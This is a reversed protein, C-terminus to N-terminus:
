LRRIMEFQKGKLSISFFDLFRTISQCQIETNICKVSHHKNLQLMQNLLVTAIGKRRHQEDVAIQTIDGTGIEFICYGVVEGRFFAANMKFNETNRMVADFSNQWSPHFDYFKPLDYNFNIKVQKFEYGVPKDKKGSIVNEKQQVFYNLERTVEFGLKQYVSIAKTNHQLVELLYQSIGAEKLYPISFEFITSALGKGRYEKRTGTGTDYATKIRNFNGIGNFTFAVLEGEDFVGFSLEPVFGRRELMTALEAKNLQMEYDSFASQFANFLVNLSFGDLSKIEYM